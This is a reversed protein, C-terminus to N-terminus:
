KITREVGLASEIKQLRLASNHTFNNLWIAFSFTAGLFAIILVTFNSKRARAEDLREKRKMDERKDHKEMREIIREMMIEMRVKTLQLEGCSECEKCNDGM